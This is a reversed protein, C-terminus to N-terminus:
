EGVPVPPTKLEGVGLSWVVVVLTLFHGLIFSNAAMRTVKFKKMIELINHSPGHGTFDRAEENVTM